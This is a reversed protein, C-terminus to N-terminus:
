DGRRLHQSRGSYCPRSHRVLSRIIAFVRSGQRRLSLTSVPCKARFRVGFRPLTRSRSDGLGPALRRPGSTPFLYRFLSMWCDSKSGCASSWSNASHHHLNNWRSGHSLRAFLRLLHWEEGLHRNPGINKPNATSQWTSRDSIHNNSDWAFNDRFPTTLDKYNPKCV